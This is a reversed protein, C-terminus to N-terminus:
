VRRSQLYRIITKLFEISRVLEERTPEQGDKPHHFWNRIYLPLTQYTYPDKGRKIWQKSIEGDRYQNTNQIRQDMTITSDTHFIDGYLSLLQDHYDYSPMGFIVYDLEAFTPKPLLLGMLDVPKALIKGNERYLHVILTDGKDILSELVRESHTAVFLQPTQGEKERIMSAMVDIVVKQWSPHLSTEPEDLLVMDTGVKLEKLAKLKLLIEIQGSSIMTYDLESNNGDISRSVEGGCRIRDIEGSVFIEKLREDNFLELILAAQSPTNVPIDRKLETGNQVDNVAKTESELLDKGTILRYIENMSGTYLSDQHLFLGQFPKEGSLSFARQKNIVYDSSSYRFLENLLTTKGCGNEGVFAIVSFPQGTRSNMFSLELSGLIPHNALQIGHLKM